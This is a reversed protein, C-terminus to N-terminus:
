NTSAGGISYYYVSQKDLSNFIGKPNIGLKKIDFRMRTPFLVPENSKISNIMYNNITYHKMSTKGKKNTYAKITTPIPVTIWLNNETLFRTLENFNKEKSLKDLIWATLQNTLDIEKSLKNYGRKCNTKLGIVLENQEQSM